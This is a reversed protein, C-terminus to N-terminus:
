KAKNKTNKKSSDTKTPLDFYIHQVNASKDIRCNMLNAVRTVKKAPMGLLKTVANLPLYKKGYTKYILIVILATLLDKSKDTVLWKLRQRRSSSGASTQETFRKMLDHKVQPEMLMELPDDSYAAGGTIKAITVLADAYVALVKEDDTQCKNFVDVFHDSYLSDATADKVYAKLLSEIKSSMIANQNFMENVSKAEPNILDKILDDISRNSDLKVAEEANPLSELKVREKAEFEKGTIKSEAVKVKKLKLADDAGVGIARKRKATDMKQMRKSTFKLLEDRNEESTAVHKDDDDQKVVPKFRFFKAEVAELGGDEQEILLKFCRDMKQETGVYHVRDNKLHTAIIQISNKLTEYKYVLNEPAPRSCSDWVAYYVVEKGDATKLIEPKFSDKKGKGM